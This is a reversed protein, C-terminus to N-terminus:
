EGEMADSPEIQVQDLIRRVEQSPVSQALSTIRRLEALASRYQDRERRLEQVRATARESGRECEQVRATAVSVAREAQAGVRDLQTSLREVDAKNQGGMQWLAATTEEQESRLRRLEVSLTKQMDDQRGEVDAVRTAVSGIAADAEKRNDDIKRGQGKIEEGHDAILKGHGKVEETTAAMEQEQADIRQSDRWTWYLLAAVVLGIAILALALVKTPSDRGM